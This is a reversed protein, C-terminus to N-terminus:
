AVQKKDLATLLRSIIEEFSLAEGKKQLVPGYEQSIGDFNVFTGSSEAYCAAPLAVKADKVSKSLQPSIVLVPSPVGKPLPNPNITELYVVVADEPVQEIKGTIGLDTLGKTNANMDSKRLFEDEWGPGGTHLYLKAKLKDEFFSIAARGEEVSLSASLIVALKGEAEKIVDLASDIAEDWGVIKKEGDNEVAPTTLRFEEIAKYALMGDNCMFSKNIEENVRPRIRYVIGGSHSINTKCGRACGPCISPSDTLLWSRKKFRFDKSTWAGVPCIHALNMSYPNDIDKGPFTTIEAKDRRNVIVLCEDEMVDRMFRVCRTCLVCRESDLVLGGGLERAKKKNIKEQVGKIRSPELDYRMYYDQLYCEGAQDCIPCDVPHNKFLFEMVARRAAQVKENETDIEMGDAVKTACAISLKPPGPKIDVLCMRCNGSVPLHPHYCFHPIFIDNELAVQIVTKGEEVEMELGNITIKVTGM